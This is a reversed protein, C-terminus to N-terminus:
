YENINGIKIQKKRMRYKSRQKETKNSYCLHCSEGEIYHEHNKDEQTLPMRCAYCLSFNGKRLSKNLSVRNDFVFCEGNWLHNM